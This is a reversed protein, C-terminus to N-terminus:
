RLRAAAAVENDSLTGCFKVGMAKKKEVVIKQGCPFLPPNLHIITLLKRFYFVCRLDLNFWTLKITAKMRRKGAVLTPVQRCSYYGYVHLYWM